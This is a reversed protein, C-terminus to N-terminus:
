FSWFCAEYTAMRKTRYSSNKLNMSSMKQLFDAASFTRWIDNRRFYPDEEAIKRLQRLLRRKSSTLLRSPDGNALVAYPDRDILAEQIPQNGLAAMWGVLGRLEDRVTLNPAIISLCQLLSLRNTSATLRKVMYNAACYEVIIKHVPAHQDTKRRTQFAPNGSYM